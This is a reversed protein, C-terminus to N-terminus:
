AVGHGRRNTESALQRWMNPWLGVAAICMLRGTQPANVKVGRVMTGLNGPRNPRTVRMRANGALEAEIM